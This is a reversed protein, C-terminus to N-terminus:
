RSLLAVRRQENERVELKSHFVPKGDAGHLYVLWEGRGLAVRFNGNADAQTTERVGQRAMSVFLVYAGSQPSSDGRYVQGEVNAGPLATIRDLRVTPPAPSSPRQPVASAPQRPEFYRELRTGSGNGSGSQELVGPVPPIRQEQVGPQLGSPSQAPPNALAPAPTAPIPAGVTVSTSTCTTVPEYYFAQQYTTVPVNMCRQVWSTVPCNQARLRYSTTPVAVNQYSCSCPDYYCSYRYSTVPEYYYSTQYSTVPEYYTRTQYSTVPQYYCRQMYQTTCVPQPCCANPAYNSVVPQKNHCSVQFVNNWAAHATPTGSEIVLLAFSLLLIRTPRM